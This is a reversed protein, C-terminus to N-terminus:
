IDEDDFFGRARPMPSPSRYRMSKPILVKLVGGNYDATIKDTDVNKPLRYSTTM